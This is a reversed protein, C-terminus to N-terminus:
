TFQNHILKTDKGHKKIKNQIIEEHQNAKNCPLPLRHSGAFSYASNSGFQGFSSLLSCEEAALIMAFLKGTSSQM